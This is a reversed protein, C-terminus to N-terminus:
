HNAAVRAEYDRCDYGATELSFIRQLRRVGQGLGLGSYDFEFGLHNCNNSTITVSGVIERDARQSGRFEGNSVKEVPITVQSAGPEFEATGTLWLMNGRADFTYKTLFIVRPLAPVGTFGRTNRLSM